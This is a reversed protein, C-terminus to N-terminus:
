FAYALRLRLRRGDQALAAQLHEASGPDAYRRDFLNTLALSAELGPMLQAAILNANALWYADAAGTLGRRTSVYQAEIGAQLGAVPLPAALNIKALRAPANVQEGSGGTGVRTWSYSTRLAAGSAWHREYELESGRASVREANDFRTAQLEPHLNLTILKGVVNNFISATLRANEGLQRVLALEASRITEKGLTPNALQGDQGPYAYYKEYSNAARFASGVMAKVTTEPTAQWILAGRPSFVGHAGTNHDYRLGANLLLHESLTVEDQLYVGIRSGRHHDDLYVQYPAVDHNYQDLRYDRQLDVGALLTHGALRTSLLTLEFGWWRASSGDLTLTREANDLIYNGFSNYAGWFLRAKIDEHAGSSTHWAANVYSQRDTTQSRPDNFPQFFSGTPVGKVREAHMVSVSLPGHVARAFLRTGNEYDLGQAVGKNQQPTDFEPYYLDRGDRRHRGAALLFDTGGASRWAGSAFARREGDQGADITGRVGALAANKKTIVNVVGFFANSGYISSGPGPVFEIREILELDLPFENGIPAQDYVADNIRNGDIQLLVRTNYDGPRMFGREGLYSYNRDYAVYIGRVSRAVDGLTRWGHSRIDAASIVTVTSPAQSAKQVFKSASYVEMALLQEFPLATLDQANNDAAAACPLSVLAAMALVLARPRFPFPHSTTHQIM